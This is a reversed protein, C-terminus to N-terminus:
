LLFAAYGSHTRIILKKYARFIHVLFTHAEKEQFSSNM